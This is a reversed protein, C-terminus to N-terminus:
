LTEAIAERVERSLSGDPAVSFFKSFQPETLFLIIFLTGVTYTKFNKRGIELIVTEYRRKDPNERYVVALASIYLLWQYSTSCEYLNQGAKLGKPMNLM